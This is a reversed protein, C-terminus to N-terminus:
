RLLQATHPAQSPSASGKAPLERRHQPTCPWPIDWEQPPPSTIHFVQTGSYSYNWVCTFDPAQKIACCHQAAATPTGRMSSGEAVQIQFTLLTPSLASFCNKRQARPERPRTSVATCEVHQQSGAARAAAGEQAQLKAPAAPSQPVLPLRDM